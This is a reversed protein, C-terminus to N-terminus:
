KLASPWNVLVTVPPAATKEPMVFLFRGDKTVDYRRDRDPRTRNVTLGTQFLAVPKDAEFTRDGKVPVAMLKGDFAIYYLERGDRRWKPEVGGDASIQWKGGNPDPFSQIFIQFTGSENTTYAIWRADPSVQALVKDFPSQLFPKPKRDGFLPLLWTDNGAGRPMFRSYVMYKNDSTWDVPIGGADEPSVVEDNGVGSSSKQYIQNGTGTRNASAFIVRAGDPSWKASWDSAPDFTIRAPIGRALDLIWIDRNNNTIIDVAVRDGSPSLEIGGYNASAGLEGLLKGTRDFWTLQKNAADAVVKRYTLIGTRSATFGNETGEAIVTAEGQLKLDSEDFRQATLKGDIMLLFFGQAYGLGGFRSLTTSLIRNPATNGDLSGVFIGSNEPISSLDAYLFHNGDPLFVPNGHATEKRSVDLSTVPKIEGGSDSVRVIVHDSLRGYLIVGDRNWTAGQAGPLDCIVQPTSNGSADIKKLKGESAFGLFRSDSSWLAGGTVNETGRLQQPAEDGIGRVWLNRQGEASQAVFAIRRGDPSVIAGNGGVLGPLSLEFRMAPLDAPGRRLVLVAPIMGIILILALAALLLRGWSSSAKRVDSAAKPPFYTEDLFLRMDGIHQLRQQPNKNLTAALLLRIAPPTEKPLLTLDPQGSVIRAMVDTSTEGAFALHATLMEYLVCGFAWIDTRADVERGRAQEPSMYGITGVISGAISGSALTPLASVNIDNSKVGLAKALGFDLVKVTGNPTLKINAPKLDRHVIGREHAAALAEAIQKAVAVAEDVPFPGTRKLRESITEGEVLEMVICGSGEVEELGYIHAINPHNLSALLQAERQFRSLREPEKAFNEPLLKLAVDRQLKTDHARFVVGMAGEGLHSTVEYPGIRSGPEISM